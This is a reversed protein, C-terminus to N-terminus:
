ERVGEKEEIGSAATQVVIEPLVVILHKGLGIEIRERPLRRSDGAAIRVRGIRIEGPGGNMVQLTKGDAACEFFAATGCNELDLESQWDDGLVLQRREIGVRFTKDENVRLSFCSKQIPMPPVPARAAEAEAPMRMKEVEERAIRSSDARRMAMIVGIGLATFVLLTFAAVAKWVFSSPKTGAAPLIVSVPKPAQIISEWAPKELLLTINSRTIKPPPENGYVRLFIPIGEPLLVVDNLIQALSKGAGISQKPAVPQSDTLVFVAPAVDSGPSLSGFAHTFALAIDTFNRYQLERIRKAIAGRGNEDIRGAYVPEVRSNVAFIQLQTGDKLAQALGEIDARADAAFKFDSTSTALIVIWPTREPVSASVTLVTAVLAFLAFATKRRRV